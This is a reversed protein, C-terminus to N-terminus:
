PGRRDVPPSPGTRMVTSPSSARGKGTGGGDRSPLRPGAQGHTDLRWFQVLKETFGGPEPMASSSRVCVLSVLVQTGDRTRGVPATGVSAQHPRHPCTVGRERPPQRSPATKGRRLPEKSLLPQM